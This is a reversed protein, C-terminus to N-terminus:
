KQKGRKVPGVLSEVHKETTRRTEPDLWAALRPESLVAQLQKAAQEPKAKRRAAKLNDLRVFDRALNLGISRRTFAVVGDLQRRGEREEVLAALKEAVEPLADTGGLAFWRGVSPSFLFDSEIEEEASKPYAIRLKLPPSWALLEAELQREFLALVVRVEYRGPEAFAFGGSGFHIQLNERFTGGPPLVIDGDALREFCRQHISQYPTPESNPRDVRTIIVELFGAKPDLLFRPLRLLRQTQNEIEVTLFIPQGYTFYTGTSPPILRLGLGTLPVEDFYPVYVGHGASWYPVSHFPRGGPILADRPGHRLFDLEDADFTATFDRWYIKSGGPHHWDYNMFSCSDRRGVAREFRHVLNLAHGLEHVTTNLLALEPYQQFYDRITRAFVAAGQRPLDDASDFMIGLLGRRTSRSLWLLRLEFAPRDLPTQAASRMLADLESEHWGEQYSPPLEDPAGADVVEIGAAAFATEITLPGDQFIIPGLPPVQQEAEIELGLRRFASRRWVATFALEVGSPLGSVPGELLLTGMVSAADSGAPALALTGGSQKGSRDHLLL